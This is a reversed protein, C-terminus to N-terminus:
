NSEISSILTDWANSLLDESREEVIRSRWAPCNAVSFIFANYKGSYSDLEKRHISKYLGSKKDWSGNSAESNHGKELIVLNGITDTLIGDELSSDWDYERPNQPCIHEITYKESGNKSFELWNEFTLVDNTGIKGKITKWHCNPDPLVNHFSALLLYRCLGIGRGKRYQPMHKAKELWRQKTLNSDFTAKKNDFTRALDELIYKRLGEISAVLDVDFNFKKFHEATGVYLSKYKSDISKTTGTGARRIVWYASLLTTVDHLVNFNSNVKSHHYAIALLPRAIEHNTSQLLSLKLKLDQITKDDLGKIQSCDNKYWTKFLFECTDALSKLYSIKSDDKCKSFSDILYRRQQSIHTGAQVGSYAYAFTEILFKVSDNRDKSDSIDNFVNDIYNLCKRGKKESIDDDEFKLKNLYQIIRPRFTEYATLPEGSTNLAEFMDFAYDINTANAFTICTRHLMYSSFVSLYISEKICDYKDSLTVIEEFNIECDKTYNKFNLDNLSVVDSDDFIKGELLRLLESDILEINDKLVEDDVDINYYDDSLFKVEENLIYDINIANAEYLYKAVPSLYKAQGKRKSWVDENGRTIVPFYKNYKDGRKITEKSFFSLYEGLQSLDDAYNNLCEYESSNLNGDELISFIKKQRIALLFVIRSSLITLTTIRQQGDIVLDTRAPKEQVLEPELSKGESDTVTLLTGLFTIANENQCFLSSGAKIDNILKLVKDSQWNYQRQYEPIHYYTGQESMVDVVSKAVSKFVDEYKM